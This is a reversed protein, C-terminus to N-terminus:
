HSRDGHKIQKPSAARESPGGQDLSGDPFRLLNAGTAGQEAENAQCVRADHGSGDTLDRERPQGDHNACLYQRAEEEGIGPCGPPGGAGPGSVIQAPRPQAGM